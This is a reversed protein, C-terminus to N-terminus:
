GTKRNSDDRLRRVAFREFECALPLNGSLLEYFRGAPIELALVDTESLISATRRGATKILAVEGFSDGASLTRIAHGKQSVEVQGQVIVYCTHGKEGEKVLWQNARFTRIHGAFILSDFCDQPLGRFVDSNLLAQITWLRHSLEGTNETRILGSFDEPTYKIQLILSNEDTVVDAARPKGLFFGAEGFLSGPALNAVKTRLRGTQRIVSARGRLLVFMTRHLQGTRCVAVGTPTEVITARSVLLRFIDPKLSRFFPLEKLENVVSIPAEETGFIRAKLNELLCEPQPPEKEFHEILEPNSILRENVLFELLNNLARFSIVVQRNFYHHALDRVSCGGRIYHLFELQQKNIEFNDATFKCPIFGDSQIRALDLKEATIKVNEFKM